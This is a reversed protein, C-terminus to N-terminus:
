KAGSFINCHPLSVPLVTLPLVHLTEENLVKQSKYGRFLNSWTHIKIVTKTIWWLHRSCTEEFHTFILTYFQISQLFRSINESTILMQQPPPNGSTKHYIFITPTHILCMYKTMRIGHNQTQPQIQGHCEKVTILRFRKRRDTMWKDVWWSIIM